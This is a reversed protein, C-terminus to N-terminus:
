LFRLSMFGNRACREVRQTRAISSKNVVVDHTKISAVALLSHQESKRRM